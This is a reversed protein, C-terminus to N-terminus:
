RANELLCGGFAHPNIVVLGGRDLIRSFFDTDGGADALWVLHDSLASRAPRVPLGGASVIARFGAEDDIGARFFIAAPKSPNIAFAELCMLAILAAIPAVISLRLRGSRDRNTRVARHWHQDGLGALLLAKSERPSLRFQM